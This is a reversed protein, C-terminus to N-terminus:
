TSSESSDARSEHRCEEVELELSVLEEHELAYVCSAIVEGEFYSYVSFSHLSYLQLVTCCMRSSAHCM